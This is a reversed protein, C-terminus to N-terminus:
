HLRNRGAPSEQDLPERDPEIVPAAADPDAGRLLAATLWAYQLGSTVTLGAAAYIGGLRLLGIIQGPLVLFGLAVLVTAVQAVTSAKGYVSPRFPRHGTTLLMVVSTTVIIMDRSFVLIVLWLPLAEVVALAIFASNLLLKDAIPDLFKGLTTQQGLRRALVGDLGDTLGAVVVLITLQNSLYFVQGVNRM